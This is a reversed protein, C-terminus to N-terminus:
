AILRADPLKSRRRAAGVKIPPPEPVKAIKGGDLQGYQRDYRNRSMAEYEETLDQGGHWHQCRMSTDMWMQFGADKVWESFVGDHTNKVRLDNGFQTRHKDVGIAEIVCRRVLLCGTGVTDVPFLGEQYPRPLVVQVPHKKVIKGTRTNVEDLWLPVTEYGKLQPMHREFALDPLNPNDHARKGVWELMGNVLVVASAAVVDKGHKIMDLVNEPPVVDSDVMLMWEWDEPSSLFDQCQQARVMDEWRIGPHDSFGLRYPGGAKEDYTWLWRMKRASLRYHMQGDLTPMSVLVGIKRGDPMVDLRLPAPDQVRVVHRKRAEQHGKYPKDPLWVKGGLRWVMSRIFAETTFPDGGTQENHLIFCNMCFKPVKIIRGKLDKSFALQWGSQWGSIESFSNCIHQTHYLPWIRLGTKMGNRRVTPQFRAFAPGTDPQITFPEPQLGLFGERDGLWLAGGHSVCEAFVSRRTRSKLFPGRWSRGRTTFENLYAAMFHYRQDLQRLETFDKLMEQLVSRGMIIDDDCFALYEWTGQKFDHFIKNRLRQCGLNEPLKVIRDFVRHKKNTKEAIQANLPDGDGDIYLRVEYDRKDAEILYGLALAFYWPRGHTTVALLAKKRTSVMQAM